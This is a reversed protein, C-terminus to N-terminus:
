STLVHFASVCIFKQHEFTCIKLRFAASVTRTGFPKAAERTLCLAWLARYLRILVFGRRPLCSLNPFFRSTQFSILPLFLQSVTQALRFSRWMKVFWAMHVPIDSVARCNSALFTETSSRSIRWSGIDRWVLHVASFPPPATQVADKSCFRAIRNCKSKTM